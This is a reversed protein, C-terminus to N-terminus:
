SAVQGWWGRAAELERLERLAQCSRGDLEEGLGSALFDDEAGEKKRYGLHM